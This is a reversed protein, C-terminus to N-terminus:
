RIQLLRAFRETQSAQVGGEEPGQCGPSGQAIPIGVLPCPTPAPKPPDFTIWPLTPLLVGTGTDESAGNSSPPLLFAIGRAADSESGLREQVPRDHCVRISPGMDQKYHEATAPKGNARCRGPMCAPHPLWFDCDAEPDVSRSKAEAGGGVSHPLPFESGNGGASGCVWIHCADSAETIALLRFVTWLLPAVGCGPTARFRGPNM